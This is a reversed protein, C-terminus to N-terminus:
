DGILWKKVKKDYKWIKPEVYGSNENFQITPHKTSEVMWKFTAISYVVLDYEISRGHNGLLLRESISSETFAFAMELVKQIDKQEKSLEYDVYELKFGVYISALFSVLMNNISYNVDKKDLLLLFYGKLMKTVLELDNFTSVMSEPNAFRFQEIIEINSIHKTVLEPKEVIVYKQDVFSYKKRKYFGQVSEVILPFFVNKIFYDWDFTYRKPWGESKLLNGDLIALLKNLKGESFGKKLLDSRTDVGNIISFIIKTDFTNKFIFLEKSIGKKNINFLPVNESLSKSFNKSDNPKSM